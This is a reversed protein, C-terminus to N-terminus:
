CVVLFETEGAVSTVTNSASFTVPCILLHICTFLDVSKSPHFLVIGKVQSAGFLVM